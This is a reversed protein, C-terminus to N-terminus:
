QDSKYDCCELCSRGIRKEITKMKDYYSGNGAWHKGM